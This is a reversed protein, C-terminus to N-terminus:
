WFVAKYSVPNTQNRIIKWKLIERHTRLNSWIHQVYMASSIDVTLLVLLIVVVVVVVLEYYYCKLM